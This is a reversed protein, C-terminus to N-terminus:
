DFAQRYRPMSWVSVADVFEDNAVSISWSM